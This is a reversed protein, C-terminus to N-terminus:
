HLMEKGYAMPMSLLYVIQREKETNLLNPSSTDFGMIAVHPLPTVAQQIATAADTSPLSM